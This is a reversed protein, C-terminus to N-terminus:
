ELGECYGESDDSQGRGRLRRPGIGGRGARDAVAPRGQLREAGLVDLREAVQDALLHAQASGDVRLPAARRDIVAANGAPRAHDHVGAAEVPQDIVREGIHGDGDLGTHRQRGEARDQNLLMLAHQDFAGWGSRAVIPPM